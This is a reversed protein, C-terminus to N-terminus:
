SRLAIRDIWRRRPRTVSMPWPEEVGLLAIAAGLLAVNKSFHIMENARQNPDEVNWFDHMMPSVTMLFTAIAAAGLKPKWGLAVSSGGFLLLAGSALVATEPMPVSKAGAYDAMGKRNKFHNIGNYVFFGGYILRGM